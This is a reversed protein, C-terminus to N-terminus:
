LIYMILRSSFVGHVGVDDAIVVGDDEGKVAAKFIADRFKLPMKALALSPVDGAAVAFQPERVLAFERPVGDLLVNEM